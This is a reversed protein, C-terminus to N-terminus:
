IETDIENRQDEWKGMQNRADKRSTHMYTDFVVNQVSTAEGMCEVAIEFNSISCSVVRCGIGESGCV